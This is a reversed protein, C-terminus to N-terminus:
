LGLKLTPFLWIDSPSLDPSCSPHPVIPINNKALFQLVVMASHSPANDDHLAWDNKWKQPRKRRVSEFADFGGRLFCCYCM